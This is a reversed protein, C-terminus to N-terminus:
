SKEAEGQAAAPAAAAAPIKDKGDAAAKIKRMRQEREYRAVYWEEFLTEILEILLRAEQPEVDVILNIDKKMHAGINGIKRVSDIADWTEEDVRGKLADIEAVQRARMIKWFDRIMGQLCRRSLTASAKPSLLEIQCAENYDAVLPEPIYSPWPKAKSDPRLPWIRKQLKSNRPHQAFTYVEATVQVENCNSNPCQFYASKLIFVGFKRTVWQHTSEDMDDNRLVAKHHCFPCTWQIAM